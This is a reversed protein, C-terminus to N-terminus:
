ATALLQNIDQCVRVLRNYGRDSTSVVADIELESVGGYEKEVSWSLSGMPYVIPWVFWFTVHICTKTDFNRFTMRLGFSAAETAADDDKKSNDNSSSTSSGPSSSSASKPGDVLEVYDCEIQALDLDRLIMKVRDWMDSVAQVTQIFGKKDQITPIQRQIGRLIAGLRNAGFRKFLSCGDQSLLRLKASPMPEAFQVDAVSLDVSWTKRRAETGANSEFTVRIVNDYILSLRNLDSREVSWLHTAVLLEYDDHLSPLEESDFLAHKKCVTEAEDIKKILGEKEMKLQEMEADQNAKKRKQEELQAKLQDLMEKKRSAEIRSRLEDCYARADAISEDMQENFQELYRQDLIEEREAPTGQSFEYFLPPSNLAVESELDKLAARGEEIYQALEHCGFEYLELEQSYLSAAKVYDQLTAPADSEKFFSQIDRKSTTTVGDMFHMGTAQLFENLTVIDVPASESEYDEASFSCDVMSMQEDMINEDLDSIMMVSDRLNETSDVSADGVSDDVDRTAFQQSPLSTDRKASVSSPSVVLSGQTQIPLVARQRQNGDAAFVINKNEMETTPPSVFTRTPTPTTSTKPKSKKASGSAPAVNSRSAQLPTHVQQQMMRQPQQQQDLPINVKLRSPTTSASMVRSDAMNATAIAPAPSVASSNSGGPKKLISKLPKAAMPAASQQSTMVPGVSMRRNVGRRGPSRAAIVGSDNGSKAMVDFNLLGAPQQKQLMHQQNVRSRTNMSPSDPQGSGFRVLESAVPVAITQRRKGAKKRGGQVDTAITTGSNASTIPPQSPEAAVPVVSPAKRNAMASDAVTTTSGAGPTGAPTTSKPTISKKPTLIGTAATEVASQEKLASQQAQLQTQAEVAAATSLIGGVCRTVDMTMNDEDEVDFRGSGLAGARLDEEDSDYLNGEYGHNYGGINNFISNTTNDDDVFADNGVVASPRDPDLPAASFMRHITDDADNMNSIVGPNVDNFMRHITDNEVNRPEVIGTKPMGANGASLARDDPQHMQFSVTTEEMEVDDDDGDGYDGAFFNNNEVNAAKYGMVMAARRQGDEDQQRVEKEPDEDEDLGGRGAVRSGWDNDEEGYRMMQGFMPALSDRDRRMRQRRQSEPSKGGESNSGSLLDGGTSSASMATINSTAISSAIGAVVGHEGADEEESSPAAETMMTLDMSSDEEEYHDEGHGSEATLIQNKGDTHRDDDDNAGLHHHGIHHALPSGKVTVEFSTEEKEDHHLDDSGSSGAGVGESEDVNRGQQPRQHANGDHSADVEDTDSQADDLHLKLNFTDVSTRRVSSLDPIKYVRQQGGAIVEDHDDDDNQYSNGRAKGSGDSVNSSSSFSSSNASRGPTSSNFWDDGGDKDFLRVHATAAFSVRRGLSRRSKKRENLTGTM